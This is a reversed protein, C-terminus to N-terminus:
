RVGRRLSAVPAGQELSANADAIRNAHRWEDAPAFEKLLSALEKLLCDSAVPNERGYPTLIANLGLKSMLWGDGLPVLRGSSFYSGVFGNWGIAMGDGNAAAELLQIYNEFTEVPAPPTDSGHAAFWDSWTAWGQRRPVLDLRPVGSWHRPPSSLTQEFRELFAPSAVPVIQEDLVRASDTDKEEVSYGFVIDIGTPILVRLTDYDCNLIRVNFGEPMSRKLRAFVPGLLLVSVEQTCGIVLVSRHARLEDSAAHLTELSSQVVAHYDAGQETLVLGRGRREFLRVKLSSELNRIYRSIASQSTNLEGAARNVGGLRATAEFAILTSISPIDFQAGSM